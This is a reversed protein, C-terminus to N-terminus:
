SGRPDATYVAARSDVLQSKKAIVTRRLWLWASQADLPQAFLYGQAFDCQMDRLEALQSQTEVGEAVVELNLNHALRIITNVIERKRQDTLIQSTFSRDVKLINVPLQVLYTLSSFGTGFDDIEVHVGLAQIERLNEISAAINEMIVGETIEILLSSAPLGTEALAARINHLLDPQSFQKGSLNVSVRLPLGSEDQWAKVTRCAQRLVWRDLPIILGIEEALPIFDGPPVLGRQPHRWRVLAEFAFLGGSRASCIPHYFVEFERNQLALRLDAETRIRQYVRGRMSADFVQHQARGLEKARYMAIDADRLVDEPGYHTSDGLVVGISPSTHLELGSLDFPVNLSEQVREALQVAQTVSTVNNLLIVFEDGGLRALTDTARICELVRQAVAVLLRDGLPHGHSDNIDKFRDLDMYLIAYTQQPNRQRQLIAQSIRDSLLSRNPLGTLTDHMADHLLQAEARKQETVDAMSGAVRVPKGNADFVTVGRMVLWRTAGDECLMRFEASFHQRGVAPDTVHSNVERMLHEVDDPDIRAFWWDYPLVDPLSPDGVMARLRPSVYMSRSAIDIDWLGDNSAQAALAYREESLRLAEQAEKIQTIEHAIIQVAQLGQYVIRTFRAVFWRLRGDRDYLRFEISESLQQTSDAFSNFASIVALADDPHLVAAFSSHYGDMQQALAQPDLIQSLAPNMYRVGGETDMVVIAEPINELLARYRNQSEALAAQAAIQERMDLAVGIFQKRDEEDVFTTGSVFVPLGTGDKALVTLELTTRGTDLAEMYASVVRRRESPHVLHYIKKRAMEEPSYGLIREFSRNWRVMRGDPHFQFVLGPNADLFYQLEQMSNHLTENIQLLAATQEAVRQELHERAAQLEDEMQIRETIDRTISAIYRTGTVPDTILSKKTLQIRDAQSGPPTFREDIRQPQGQELVARDFAAFFDARERPQLEYDTHGLWQSRDIDFEACASDNILVWRGQLDKVMIPDDIGNFISQYFDRSQRLEEEATRRRALERRTQKLAQEITKRLQWSYLAVGLLVAVVVISDNNIPSNFRARQDLLGSVQAWHLWLINGAAFVVVGVLAPGRLLMASTIVILFYLATLGSDHFHILTLVYTIQIIITLSCAAGARQVHGHHMCRYLIGYLVGCTLMVLLSERSLLRLALGVLLALLTASLDIWILANLLRAQRTKEPDGPFVPPAIWGSLRSFATMM